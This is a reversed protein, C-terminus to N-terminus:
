RGGQERDDGSGSDARPASLEPRRLEIEADSAQEGPRVRGFVPARVCGGRPNRRSLRVNRLLIL